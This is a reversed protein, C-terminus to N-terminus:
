REVDAIGQKAIETALSLRVVVLPEQGDAKVILVDRGDLWSYLERFGQACAKVELCLDRGQAAYVVDGAFRGGAWGSLPVRATRAARRKCRGCSARETRAGKDRSRRGSMCRGEPAMGDAPRGPSLGFRRALANALQPQSIGLEGALEDQTVSRARMEARVAAGIGAPLLGRRYQALDLSRQASCTRKTHGRRPRRPRHRPLDYSFPLYPLNLSLVITCPPFRSPAELGRENLRKLRKIARLGAQRFSCAELTPSGSGATACPPAPRRSARSLAARKSPSKPSRCAHLLRERPDVAEIMVRAVALTAPTTIHRGVEALHLERQAATWFGPKRWAHLHSAPHGGRSRRPPKLDPNEAASQVRRRLRGETVVAAESQQGKPRSLDAEGIFMAWVRNGLEDPTAHTRKAFEAATVRALLAERGDIVRGNADRVMRPDPQPLIEGQRARQRSKQAADMSQISMAPLGKVPSGLGVSPMLSRRSPPRTMAPLDDVKATVPNRRSGSTLSALTRTSETPWSNSESSLVDICGAFKSM